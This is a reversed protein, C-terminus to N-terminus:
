QEKPPIVDEPVILDQPLPQYNAPQRALAADLTVEGTLELDTRLPLLGAGLLELRWRGAKLGTFAFGGGADTLAVRPDDKADPRTLRVRVEALPAGGAIRVSGTVSAEGELDKPPDPPANGRVLALEVVARFPARVVIGSKVVPLYGERRVSGRYTGDPVGDFAFTGSEGTTAVYVRAGPGEPALTVVVGVAPLHRGYSITGRIQGSGRAPTSPATAAPPIAPDTPGAPVAPTAPATPPPAPEQAAAALGFAAIFAAALVSALRVM